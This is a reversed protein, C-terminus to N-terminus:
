ITRRAYIILNQYLRDDSPLVKGALLGLLMIPAFLLPTLILRLIRFRTLLERQALYLVLMQSITELNGTAKHISHVAFGHEELLHKLGFSTYRAFDYPREHEDWVFPTTVLMAGGPRLVRAIEDLIEDLNFIHEFAESAFVSDFTCSDFPLNRGDYFVDAVMRSRAHGSQEVDVAIYSAYSFLDRYPSSGAGFDMIHGTIHPSYRRIGTFLGRRVLFFPNVFIAWWPPQFLIRRKFSTFVPM